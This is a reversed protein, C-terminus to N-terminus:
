DESAGHERIGEYDMFTRRWDEPVPMTKHTHYDYTVLIVMGDAYLQGTGADEITERVSISKNGVAETRVGVQVTTGLFIPARYKIHIDAVIMGIDMFSQDKRFLGLHELYRIRAQEFYTLFKANNLHGQPDLDAYRVEMPHYFRIESM